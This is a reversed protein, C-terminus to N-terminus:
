ASQTVTLVEYGDSYTHDGSNYVYTPFHVYATRAQGTTNESCTVTFAYIATRGQPVTGNITGRSLYERLNAESAGGGLDVFTASSVSVWDVPNGGSARSDTINNNGASVISSATSTSVNGNVAPGLAAYFDKVKGQDNATFSVSSSRLSKMVPCAAQNIVVDVGNDDTDNGRVNMTITRANGWNVPFAQSFGDSTNKGDDYTTFGTSSGYVGFGSDENDLLSKTVTFHKVAGKAPITGVSSPTVGTIFTGQATVSVQCTDSLAKNYTYATITTVGSKNNPLIKGASTVTAVSKDSSEWLVQKNDASDPTVTATLIKTKVDRYKLSVSKPSVTIGTPEKDQSPRQKVTVNITGRNVNNEDKVELKTTGIAEGRVKKGTVTAILENLSRFIFNGMATDKKIYIRM